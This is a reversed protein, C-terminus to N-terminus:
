TVHQRVDGGVPVSHELSSPQRLPADSIPVVDSLSVEVAIYKHLSTMGLVLRRGNRIDTLIGSIGALPGSQVYVRQGQALSCWSQLPMKTETLARIEEIEEDAISVPVKGVGVIRIVSPAEVIRFNYHSRFRCFTYGPFLPAHRRAATRSSDTHYPAFVEYGWDLLRKAVTGERNVKVQVAVWSGNTTALSM